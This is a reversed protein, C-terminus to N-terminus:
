HVAGPPSTMRKWDEFAARINENAKLHSTSDAIQLLTYKAQLSFLISCFLNIPLLVSVM